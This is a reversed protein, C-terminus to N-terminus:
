FGNTYYTFCQTNTNFRPPTAGFFDTKCWHKFKQKPFKSQNNHNNNKKKLDTACVLPHFRHGMPTTALFFWYWFSFFLSFFLHL